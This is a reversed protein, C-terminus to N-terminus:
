EINDESESQKYKECYEDWGPTFNAYTENHKERMPLLHQLTAISINVGPRWKEIQKNEKALWDRPTDIEKQVEREKDAVIIKLEINTSLLKIKNDKLKTEQGWM